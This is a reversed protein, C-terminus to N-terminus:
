AKFRASVPIQQLFDYLRLFLSKPMYLGEECINCSIMSGYFTCGFCTFSSLRRPHLATYDPQLLGVNRHLCYAGKFRRDVELLSSPAIDRFPTMKM